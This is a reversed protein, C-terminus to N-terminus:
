CITEIYCLFREHYSIPKRSTCNLVKYKGTDWNKKCYHVGSFEELFGQQETLRPTLILVFLLFMLQAWVHLGGGGAEVWLCCFFLDETFNIPVIFGVSNVILWLLFCSVHM